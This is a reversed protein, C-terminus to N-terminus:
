PGEWPRMLAAPATLTTRVPEVVFLQDDGEWPLTGAHVVDYVQQVAVLQGPGETHGWMEM